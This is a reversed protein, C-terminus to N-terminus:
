LSINTIITRCRLFCRVPQKFLLCLTHQQPQDIPGFFSQTLVHKITNRDNGNQITTLNLLKVTSFSDSSPIRVVGIRNGPQAQDVFMQTALFRAGTPDHAKIENINDVILVIDARSSTIAVLQMSSNVARSQHSASVSPSGTSFIFLLFLSLSAFAVRRLSAGLSPRHRLLDTTIRTQSVFRKM